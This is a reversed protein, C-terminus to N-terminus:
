QPAGRRAENLLGLLNEGEIAARQEDGLFPMKAFLGYTQGFSLHGLAPMYDSAWLLRGAGFARLLSEVYPWAQTHPYDYGPDTMAYFGSLKVQPGPYLALQRVSALAVDAGEADMPETATPPLGLHSAVVRLDGYRELVPRWAYWFEGRSNVSILWRHDIIWQWVADDVAQLAAANEDDFIYLSIGIFGSDSLRELGAVDPVDVVSFYATPHLWDHSAVVEALYATNGACDGMGEFAVVLAAQVGHDAMLSEYVPIEEITVGPRATFSAPYGNRFLHIHADARNPM